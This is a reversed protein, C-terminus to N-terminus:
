NFSRPRLAINRKIKGIEKRNKEYLLQQMYKSINM